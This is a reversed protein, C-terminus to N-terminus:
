ARAVVPPLVASLYRYCCGLACTECSVLFIHGIRLHCWRARQTETIGWLQTSEIPPVGSILYCTVLPEWLRLSELEGMAQGIAGAKIWVDAIDKRLALQTPLPATFALVARSAESVAGGQLAVFVTAANKDLKHRKGMHLMAAAHLHSSVCAM